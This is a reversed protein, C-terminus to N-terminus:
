ALTKVGSLKCGLKQLQEDLKCLALNKEKEYNGPLTDLFTVIDYSVSGGKISQWEVTVPVGPATSQLGNITTELDDSVQQLVDGVERDKPLNVAVNVHLKRVEKFEALLDSGDTSNIRSRNSISLRMIDGNPITWPVKKDTLSVFTTRFPSVQDVKGLQRVCLPPLLLRLSSPPM